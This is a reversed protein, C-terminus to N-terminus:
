ARPVSGPPGVLKNGRPRFGCSGCGVYQVRRGAVIRSNLIKLWGNCSPCPDGPLCSGGAFLDGMLDDATKGADALIQRAIGGDVGALSGSRIAKVLDRYTM